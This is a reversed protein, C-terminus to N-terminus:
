PRSPLCFIFKQRHIEPPAGSSFIGLEKYLCVFTVLFINLIKMNELIKSFNRKVGQKKSFIQKLIIQTFNENNM